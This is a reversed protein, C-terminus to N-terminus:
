NLRSLFQRLQYFLHWAEIKFRWDAGNKIQAERGELLTQRILRSSVGCGGMVAIRRHIFRASLSKKRLLIEYDLAIKFREDFAGTEALFSKRHFSAVHPISMRRRLASIEGAAGVLQGHLPGGDFVLQGYVVDSQSDCCLVAAADAMVREDQLRDDSGIFIIWDGHAQALAKNWAHAIGRDQKSEWYGLRGANKELIAVTGDTSGGDMIILEVASYTQGLVSDICQQLTHVGNYVAVIVSILPPKIM